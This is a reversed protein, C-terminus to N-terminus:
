DRRRIWLTAHGPEVAQRVVELLEACVADFEVHDRLRTVFASVMAESDYRARNFRRDVLRQMRRRIPNFLGVAVLTSAAV